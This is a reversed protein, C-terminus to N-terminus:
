HLSLCVTSFLYTSFLQLLLAMTPICYHAPGEGPNLPTLFALMSEKTFAVLGGKPTQPLALIEQGRKPFCNPERSHFSLLLQPLLEKGATAKALGLYL